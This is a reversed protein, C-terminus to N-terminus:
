WITLSMVKCCTSESGNIVFGNWVQSKRIVSTLQKYGWIEHVLDVLFPYKPTCLVAQYSAWSSFKSSPQQTISFMNLFCWQISPESMKKLLLRYRTFIKCAFIPEQVFHYLFLYVSWTINFYKKKWNVVHIYIEEKTGKMKLNNLMQKYIASFIFSPMCLLWHKVLKDM